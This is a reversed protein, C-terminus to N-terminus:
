NSHSYELLLRRPERSKEDVLLITNPEEVAGTVEVGPVGPEMVGEPEPEPDPVNPDPAKLGVAAELLV